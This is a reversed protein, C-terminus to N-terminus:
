NADAARLEDSLTLVALSYSNACNYELMTRFNDYVRWATGANEWVTALGDPTPEAASHIRLARCTLGEPGRATFEPVDDLEEGWAAGPQWGKADLYAGISMLVDDVSNLLDRRGDGDGDRAWNRWTSPMFQAAGLAGAWSGLLEGSPIDEM